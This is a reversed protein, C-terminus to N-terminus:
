DNYIIECIETCYWVGGLSLFKRVKSEDFLFSLSSNLCSRLDFGITVFQYANRRGQIQELMKYPFILPIVDPFEELDFKDTFIEYSKLLDLLMMTTSDLFLSYSKKKLPLNKIKEMIENDKSYRTELYRGCGKLNFDILDFLSHRNRTFSILENQFSDTESKNLKQLFKKFIRETKQHIKNQLTFNFYFFNREPFSDQRVYPSFIAYYLTDPLKQNKIYMETLEKEFDLVSSKKRYFGIEKDGLLKNFVKYNCDKEVVIVIKSNLSSQCEDFLHDLYELEDDQVSAEKNSPLLFQILVYIGILVEGVGIKFPM